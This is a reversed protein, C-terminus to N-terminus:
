AEMQPEQAPAKISAPTGMLAETAPMEAAQDGLALAPHGHQVNLAHLVEVAIHVKPRRCGPIVAMWISM